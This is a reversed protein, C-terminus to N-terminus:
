KGLVLELQKKEAEAKTEKTVPIHYFPINFSEALERLDPHNSVVMSIDADLEGAQRRWLLERLCHDEKSVFIALRNREAAPRISWEMQFRAAIHEFDTKLQELKDQLGALDFEIRIFFRGGEPDMSYQDSQVINAQHDYLFRSVSAVIGPQDPCVVLMRAREHLHKKEM